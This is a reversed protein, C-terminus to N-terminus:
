GEIGQMRRAENRGKRKAGGVVLHWMVEIEPRLHKSSM